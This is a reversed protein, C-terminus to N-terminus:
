YSYHLVIHQSSVSVEMLTDMELPSLPLGASALGRYFDARPIVLENHADFQRLFERPRIGERVM